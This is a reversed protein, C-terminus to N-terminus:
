FRCCSPLKPLEVRIHPAPALEPLQANPLKPTEVKWSSTNLTALGVILKKVDSNGLARDLGKNIESNPGGLIGHKQADTLSVGSLARVAKAIDGKEAETAAFNAAVIGAFNGITARILKDVEGNKCSADLTSRDEAIRKDIEDRQALLKPRLTTAYDALYLGNIWEQEQEPKVATPYVKESFFTLANFNPDAQKMQALLPAALPHESWSKYFALKFAEKYHPLLEPPPAKLADWQALVANGSAKLAESSTKLAEGARICPDAFDLAGQACVTASSLITTALLLWKAHEM